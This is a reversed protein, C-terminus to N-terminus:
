FSEKKKRAKKKSKHANLICNQNPAPFSKTSIHDYTTHHVWSKSCLNKYDPVTYVKCNKHSFNVSIFQICINIIHNSGPNM